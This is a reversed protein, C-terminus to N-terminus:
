LKTISAESRRKEIGWKGLDAQIQFKSKKTMNYINQETDRINQTEKYIDSKLGKISDDYEKKQYKLNGISHYYNNQENDRMQHINQLERKKNSVEKSQNNKVIMDVDERCQILEEDNLQIDDIEIPKSM